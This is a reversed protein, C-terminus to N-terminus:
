ITYNSTILHKIPDIDGDIIIGVSTRTNWVLLHEDCKDIIKYKTWYLMEDGRIIGNLSLVGFSVINVM